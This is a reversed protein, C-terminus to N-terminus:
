GQPSCRSCAKVNKRGCTDAFHKAEKYTAFPHWGGDERYQPREQAYSCSKRHITAANQRLDINVYFDDM